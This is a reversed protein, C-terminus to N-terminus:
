GLWPRKSAVSLPAYGRDRWLFSTRLFSCIKRSYYLDGARPSYSDETWNRQQSFWKSIEMNSDRVCLRCLQIMTLPTCSLYCSDIHHTPPIFPLLPNLSSRGSIPLLHRDRATAYGTRRPEHDTWVHHVSPVYQYNRIRGALIVFVATEVGVFVFYKIKILIFITPTFQPISIPCLM